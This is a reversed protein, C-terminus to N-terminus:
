REEKIKLAEVGDIDFIEVTDHEIEGWGTQQPEALSSEYYFDEEAEAANEAEIDQYYQQRVTYYIRYKPM